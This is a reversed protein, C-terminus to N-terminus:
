ADEKQQQREIFKGLVDTGKRITRLNKATDIAKAVARKLEDSSFPKELWYTLPEVLCRERWEEFSSVVIVPIDDRESRLTQLVRYGNGNPLQIDLLVLDTDLKELADQITSVEVVSMGMPRLLGSIFARVSSDDEVLLARM